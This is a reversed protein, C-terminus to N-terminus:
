SSDVFLGYGVHIEEGFWNLSIVRRHVARNVDFQEHMSVLPANLLIHLFKSPLLLLNLSTWKAHPCMALGTETQLEVTVPEIANFNCMHM